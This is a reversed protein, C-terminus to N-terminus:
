NQFLRGDNERLLMLYVLAFPADFIIALNPGSIFSKIIQLDRLNQSNVNKDSAQNEIINNFLEPSLKKDLWSTIHIFILSRIATLIGLFVFLILIILSLFVLTEISGSSLVRDLVQM